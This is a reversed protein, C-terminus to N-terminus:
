HPLEPQGAILASKGSSATCDRHSLHLPSRAAPVACNPSPVYSTGSATLGPAHLHPTKTKGLRYPHRPFTVFLGEGRGGERGHHIKQLSSTFQVPFLESVAPCRGLFGVPWRGKFRPVPLANLLHPPKYGWPIRCHGLWVSRKTSLNQGSEYKAQHPMTAGPATGLGGAKAGQLSPFTEPCCYSGRLRQFVWHPGKNSVVKLM